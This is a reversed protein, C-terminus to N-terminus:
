STLSDVTKRQSLPLTFEFTAGSEKNNRATIKGGHASIIGKCLFLGLGNGGQNESEHGKTVFKGFINPLVDEPIGLGTDSITVLLEDSKKNVLTKVKITGNETFKISNNILNRLVQEVRTRDLTIEADEDLEEIIKVNKNLGTKLMKTTDSILENIRLKEHYLTLRNSDIRTVDLVDNALEQLKKALTTVGDWAEKQDIDGSQALEAFGFIPQIPSKLEHSAISIFDNKLKDLDRLKKNADQLELTKSEIEKKLESNNQHIFHRLSVAIVGVVIMIGIQVTLWGREHGEIANISQENLRKIDNSTSDIKEKIQNEKLTIQKPLFGDQTFGFADKTMDEFENHTQEIDSFMKHIQEFDSGVSDTPAMNYGAEALKKGQIISSKVITNSSWFEEKAKDLDNESLQGAKIKEFNAVQNAQHYRIEGLINQLPEYEQSISIIEKSVKSMQYTGFLITIGLLLIIIGVTGSIKFSTKGAFM